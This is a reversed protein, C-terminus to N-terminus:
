SGEDKTQLYAVVVNVTTTSSDPVTASADIINLTASNPDSVPVSLYALRSKDEGVGVVCTATKPTIVTTVGSAVNVFRGRLTQIELTDDDRDTRTVAFPGAYARGCVFKVTANRDALTYEPYRWSPIDRAHIWVSDRCGDKGALQSACNSISRGSAPTNTIKGGTEKESQWHGDLLWIKCPPMDTAVVPPQPTMPIEVPDIAPMFKIFVHECPGPDVMAAIMDDLKAARKAPDDTPDDPSTKGCFKAVDPLYREIKVLKAIVRRPANDEEYAVPSAESSDKVRFPRYADLNDKYYPIRRGCPGPVTQDDLYEMPVEIELPQHPRFEV